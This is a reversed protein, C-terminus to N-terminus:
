AAYLNEYTLAGKIEMVHIAGALRATFKVDRLVRQAKVNASINAARPVTIVFGLVKNGDDDLEVNAIGGRKQGLVLVANLTIEVLGIGEDTIPLKDRNILMSFEETQITEVLWDRFRIVDIWEGAAVKGNQTITVNRFREFTNGNKATVAKYETESLGDATISSLKKNAWTEGGPDIAFCRASIAAEPYENTNAHYWWHTRFYNGDRLKTGLDSSVEANKAGPASISVGYLKIHAETWDAMALVAAETRDVYCIGYFDNDADCIKAMNDAVDLTLAQEQASIALKGNPVVVFSMNADTAKIVLEDETVSVAYVKPAADQEDLSNSLETMVKDTTDSTQATYSAKLDILNGDNDLRQVAVSYEVGEAVAAVARVKVTDCQIRGVKVERPRPTQAFADGAALYIPDTSRFGMDMLEDVDTITLVRSLSNAHPGIIMLTSFGASSIGTTNLSIQANIIRDINAM